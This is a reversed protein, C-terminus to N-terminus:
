KPGAERELARQLLVMQETVPYTVRLRQNVQEGIQDAIKHELDLVARTMDLNKCVRKSAKLAAELTVAETDTLTLTIEM